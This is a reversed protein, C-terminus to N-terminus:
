AFKHRSCAAELLPPLIRYSFFILNRHKCPPRSCPSASAPPADFGRFDASGPYDTDGLRADVLEPSIRLVDATIRTMITDMGTGIEPGRSAVPVRGDPQLRVLAKSPLNKAPYTEAAPIASVIGPNAGCRCHKGEHAAWTMM